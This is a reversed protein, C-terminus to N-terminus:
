SDTHCVHLLHKILLYPQLSHQDMSCRCFHLTVRNFVLAETADIVSLPPQFYGWHTAHALLEACSM